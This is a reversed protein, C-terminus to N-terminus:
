AASSRRHVRWCLAAMFVLLAGYTISLSAGAGVAGHSAVLVRGIGASLAVTVFWAVVVSVPFGSAALYQSFIAAVGVCFVGPLMARLVPVAPAFRPGFAVRIAPDAAVWAVGCILAVLAATRAAARITVEFRGAAAAALRPFLVLAISQPLIGLTDAIQSAVSYYGVQTSGALGHLIFVNMRMVLFGALTVLYARVSYRFTTVFVDANFRLKSASPGLLVLMAGVATATGCVAAALFGNPGAQWYAAIMMFPLAGASLLAQTASFAKLRNLGVFLSGGLLSFVLLPALTLAFLGTGVHVRGTAGFRAVALYGLALLPVAVFALWVSNALLGPVLKRDRAAFYTNSSPLGLSAFQAILQATTVALFYEGRGAPQLYRATIVSSVIGAVLGVGRSGLTLVLAGDVKSWLRSCALWVDGSPAASPRVSATARNTQANLEALM